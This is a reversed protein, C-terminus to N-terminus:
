IPARRAPVTALAGLAIANTLVVAHLALASLVADDFPIGARMTAVVWAAQAPGVGAIGNIPLAFAISGAMVGLVAAAPAFSAAVAGAVLVAILGVVLWLAYGLVVALMAARRDGIAAFGATLRAAHQGIWPLRALQRPVAQAALAM